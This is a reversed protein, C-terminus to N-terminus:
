RFLKALFLYAETRMRATFVHKGQWVKLKLEGTKFASKAYDYVERAGSSWRDDDTASIYLSAPEAMKVIDEIDGYKLINPVCFEMQIGAGRIISKKYNVCGCNSVAVKIRKDLATAWIAMRGGYSHGIFGIRGSDVDRRSELYDLGVCVDHLVKALLTEGRVLRTALEFYEANGSKDPDWNRDEFAIADPAFTIYGLEALEVAIAQEPDGALGAVESKGLDFRSGHQHHCFVAPTNGKIKKPILVYASVRENFETNYEVKERMYTGCDENEVVVANLSTKKPFPGLLKLLQETQM